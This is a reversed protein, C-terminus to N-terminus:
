GMAIAFPDTVRARAHISYAITGFPGGSAGLDLPDLSGPIVLIPRWGGRLRRTDEIYGGLALMALAHGGMATGAYPHIEDGEARANSDGTAEYAIRQGATNPMRMRICCAEAPPHLLADGCLIDQEHAAYCYISTDGM